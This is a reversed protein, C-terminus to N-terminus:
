PRNVGFVTVIFKKMAVAASTSMFPCGCVCDGCVTGRGATAARPTTSACAIGIASPQEDVNWVCEETMGM